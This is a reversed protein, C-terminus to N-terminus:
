ENLLSGVLARFDKDFQDYKDGTAPGNFGTTIKRVKGTKDLVITTPYSLIHNLMPLKEQALEKDSSGYQALLIPYQVGIREKLRNIAKFAAEETKAYEFSLAVVQLNNQKQEKLYNVLYKTEDLCNPCWTGMIQVIVVKDQFQPDELSVTNGHTDPFMFSLKDYGEKIYTLSDEDPLEYSANRKAVFPEKFHDGSYFTGNLTSDTAKAIFMFVHAGDFTSLKLSDGDMVGELFRYDGTTTRFTGVVRDGTQTFMGKGMYSDDTNPSFETEWIGGINKTSPTKVEFRREVGYTAKFDVSREMSEQVFVGVIEEPTFVGSIYGEFAPMKILISDNEIAIEDIALVEDANYSEMLYGGSASKSIKFNFPMMQHDMLKMKGLWMGEKLTSPETNKCATLISFVSLLFAIKKM